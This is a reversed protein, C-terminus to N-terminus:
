SLGDFGLSYNSGLEFRLAQQVDLHENLLGTYHFGDRNQYKGAM